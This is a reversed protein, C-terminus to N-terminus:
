SLPADDPPRALIEEIATLAAEHSGYIDEPTHEWITSSKYVQSSFSLNLAEFDENEHYWCRVLPVVDGLVLRQESKKDRYKPVLQYRYSM